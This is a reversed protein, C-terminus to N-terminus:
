TFKHSKQLIIKLRQIEQATKDDDWKYAMKFMELMPMMVKEMRPRNFYLMGTRRVFFDSPEVVMEYTMCFWGEAKALAVDTNEELNQNVYELIM